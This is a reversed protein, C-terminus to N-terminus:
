QNNGLYSLFSRSALPVAPTMSLGALTDGGLSGALLSSPWTAPNTTAPGAITANAIPTEDSATRLNASGNTNALGDVNSNVFSPSM